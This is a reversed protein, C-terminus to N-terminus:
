TRRYADPVADTHTCMRHTVPCKSPRAPPVTMDIICDSIIYHHLAAPRGPDDAGHGSSLLEIFSLPAELCVLFGGGGTPSRQIMARTHEGTSAVRGPGEPGADARNKQDKRKQREGGLTKTHTSPIRKYCLLAFCLLAPCLLASLRSLVQFGKRAFCLFAYFLLASRANSANSTSFLLSLVEEM